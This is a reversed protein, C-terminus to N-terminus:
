GPETSSSHTHDPPRVSTAALKICRCCTAYITTAQTALVLGQQLALQQVKNSLETDQGSVSSSCRSCTITYRSENAKDTKLQYISKKSGSSTHHWNRLVIGQNEFERLIRYITAMCIPPNNIPTSLAYFVNEVELWEQPKEALVGMIYIRALTPRLGAARLAQTHRKKRSTEM